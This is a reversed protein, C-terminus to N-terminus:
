INNLGSLSYELVKPILTQNQKAYDQPRKKIIDQNDGYLAERKFRQVPTEARQEITM